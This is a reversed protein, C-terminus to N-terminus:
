KGLGAQDRERSDRERSGRERSDRERSDRERSDRERSMLLFVFERRDAALDRGVM